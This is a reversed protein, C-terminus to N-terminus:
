LFVSLALSLTKTRGGYKFGKGMYTYEEGTKSLGQTLIADLFFRDYFDTGIVFQFGTDILKKESMRFTPMNCFIQGAELTKQFVPGIGVRLLDKIYAGAIIPLTVSVQKDTLQQHTNKEHDHLLYEHRTTTISPRSRIWVLDQTYLLALGLSSTPAQYIYELQYNVVHDLNTLFISESSTFNKGISTTVGIRLQSFLQTTFLLVLLIIKILTKM